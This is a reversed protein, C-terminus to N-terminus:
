HRTNSVTYDAATAPNVPTAAITITTTANATFNQTATVASSGGNETISPQALSLTVSRTDDETITLTVPAVSPAPSTHAINTAAASVTVSKDAAVDNNNNATITVAGASATAGPAITLTKNASLAFDAAVAGSGPNAAITITTTAAATFNQTATVTSQGGNETISTPSLSLTVVPADDDSLTIAAAPPKVRLTLGAADPAGAGAATLTITEPANYQNNATPTIRLTTTARATYAGAGTTTVASNPLDFSPPAAATFQVANAAGTSTVSIVINEAAKGGVQAAAWAAGADLTATVTVATEGDSETLTAPTVALTLEGALQNGTFLVSSTANGLRSLGALEPPILGTLRNNDLRLVSLSHGYQPNDDDRPNDSRYRGATGLEPPIPGDLQNDQLQLQQLRPLNGLQAPISGSLNNEQLYLRQLASLQGLEPPINGSLNNQDLYLRQLATMNGLEPPISGSLNNDHLWLYTVHSLQGLEAPISGSLNNQFLLLWRLMEANGLEPPIPGTLNNRQFQVTRLGPLHGLEKPIEGTLRPDTVGHPTCRAVPDTRAPAVQFTDLDTNGLEGPISGTLCNYSLYLANLHTLRGLERPIRGSLYNDNLRMRMLNTMGGLEPPIPGTLRNEQLHFWQMNTHRGLEPPIEGTLRNGQLQFSGTFNLPNGLEPPISGTLQNDRLNLANLCPLHGLEPPIEGTLQQNTMNISRLATLDGLAAPVAGALPFQFEAQPDSYDNGVRTADQFSLGTVRNYNGVLADCDQYGIYSVSVGTWQRIDLSSDWNLETAGRLTDKLRLLTQCDDILGQGRDVGTYNVLAGDSACDPEDDTITLAAAAVPIGDPHNANAAAGSLTVAKDYAFVDNGVATLRVTGTSSTQNPAITLASGTLTFDAAAAPFVPAASVTITTTATSPQNLTATITTAGGSETTSTASLALTVLPSDDDLITLAAGTVTPTAASQPYNHLTGVLNVTKPASTANNDHATVKFSWDDHTAMPTVSFRQFEQTYDNGTAPSVPSASVDVVTPMTDVFNQILTVRAVGGNESIISPSLHLTATRADDEAITLTAGTLSPRPATQAPNAAQGYLAVQKDAAYFANDVATITVAAASTTAGPAITLTPTAPLQYDAYAAPLIPRAKLTVTTTATSVHNQAATITAAGGNETISTASLSLTVALGDDDAFRILRPRPLDVAPGSTQTLRVFVSKAESVASDNVGTISISGGSETNGAAITLTPSAPLTFASTTAPSVPEAVVTLTITATAAASLAASVAIAGGNETVERADLNLTVQPAAQADVGAPPAPFYLGAAIAALILLLLSIRRLRLIGMLTVM